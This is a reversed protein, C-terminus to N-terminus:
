DTAQDVFHHILPVGVREFFERLAVEGLESPTPDTRKSTRKGVEGHLDDFEDGLVVHDDAVELARARM